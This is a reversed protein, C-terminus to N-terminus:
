VAQSLNKALCRPPRKSAPTFDSSTRFVYRKILAMNKILPLKAVWHNFFFTLLPIKIPLLVLTDSTMVCFGAKAAYGLLEKESIRRHPGEEMKLHLKELIFLIPEWYPNAMTLVIQTASNCFKKLGSFLIEPSELHEIVDVLLVYDFTNKLDANEYSSNQFYLHPFKVKALKIMGSSLDIGTGESPSLANLIEGTGTGIDLVRKGPPVVATVVDILCQYYYGNKEKKIVDYSDALSDFHKQVLVVDVIKQPGQSKTKTEM